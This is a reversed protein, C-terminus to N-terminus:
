AGPPQGAPLSEASLDAPLPLLDDLAAAAEAPSGAVLRNWLAPALHSPDYTIILSCAMPNVETDLLGAIGDLAAKLRDLRAWQPQGPGSEGQLAAAIGAPDFRLRLRGPVHHVIRCHRRAALLIGIVADRPLPSPACSPSM